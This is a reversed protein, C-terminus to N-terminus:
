RLGYKVELATIKENMEALEKDYGAKSIVGELYMAELRVIDARMCALDRKEAVTLTQKRYQEKKKKGFM